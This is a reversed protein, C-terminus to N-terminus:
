PEDEKLWDEFDGTVNVIPMPRYQRVSGVVLVRPSYASYPM